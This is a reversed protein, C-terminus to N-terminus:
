ARAERDVLWCHLAYMAATAHRGWHVDYSERWHFAASAVDGADYVELGVYMESWIDTLDDHVDGMEMETKDLDLPDFYSRYYQVPIDKYGRFMANWQESTYKSPGLYIGSGRPVREILEVLRSLRAFADRASKPVDPESWACYERAAAAFAQVPDNM